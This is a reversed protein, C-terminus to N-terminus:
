NCTDDSWNDAAVGCLGSSSWSRAGLSDFGPHGGEGSSNVWIVNFWV